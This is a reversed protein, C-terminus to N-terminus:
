FGTEHSRAGPHKRVYEIFKDELTPAHEGNRFPCWEPPEKPIESDYEVYGVIMKNDPTASCHYDHAFGARATRRVFHYPCQDCRKVEVYVSM